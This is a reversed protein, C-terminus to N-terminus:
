LSASAELAPMQRNGSRMQRSIDAKKDLTDVIDSMKQRAITLKGFIQTYHCGLKQAMWSPRWHRRFYVYKLVRRDFDPIAVYARNVLEADPVNVPNLKAQSPALGEWVQPSHWKGEVSGCPSHPEGAHVACWRLWNIFRSHFDTM